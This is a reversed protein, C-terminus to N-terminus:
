PTAPSTLSADVVSAKIWDTISDRPPNSMRIVFAPPGGAPEKSVKSSFVQCFATSEDKMLWTRRIRAAKGCKRFDSEGDTRVNVEYVTFCGRGFKTSEFLTRAAVTPNVLDRAISSPLSFIRKLEMMGPQVIVSRTCSSIANRALFLLVVTSSSIALCDASIGSPRTPCGCSNALAATKRTEGAADKIWPTDSATSPPIVLLANQHM